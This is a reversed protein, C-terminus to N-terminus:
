FQRNFEELFQSLKERDGVQEAAAIKQSIEALILKTQRQKLLNIYFKLEQEVDKEPMDAYYEEATMLTELLDVKDQYDLAGMLDDLLFERGTYCNKLKSYVNKAFPHVWKLQDLEGQITSWYLPKFVVMGLIRKELWDAKETSKIEAKNTKATRRGQKRGAELNKLAEYLNDPTVNLVKALKKVYQDKEVPSNLLNIAPLVADAVKKKDNVSIIGFKKVAYDIYFDIIPVAGEVISQWKKPDAKACEDPDKFGELIAVRIELDQASAMEIARKTAESGASDADLALILTEAYRRIIGLQDLTLATGSSAVVNQVGAQYSSLVDMQGEVLVVSKKAIIDEKVVSLGYLVRGKNFIPTEPSNLYKPQDKVDLVRGTFGVVKDSIDTIPFMLRHRFKDTHKGNRSVILGAKEIEGSSYDKRSLFKFLYDWGAPAYGLRFKSVIEASLGRNILYNMAQRGSATDAMYKDFFKAALENIVLLKSKIGWDRSKNKLEVGAREALQGLAEVFELGEKKMLFGFIDGGAGCGFCHWIQKDPSVVLSPDKDGHFPCVTRFNRGAKKLPLYQGILEVIDIRSKIEDLEDM